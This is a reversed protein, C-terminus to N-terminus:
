SPATCEATNLGTLSEPATLKRWVIYIVIIVQNPKLQQDYKIGTGYEGKNCFTLSRKTYQSRM